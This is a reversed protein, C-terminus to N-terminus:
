FDLISFHERNDIFIPIAVKEFTNNKPGFNLFVKKKLLM